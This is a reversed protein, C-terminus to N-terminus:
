GHNVLADVGSRLSEPCHHAYRQAMRIDKQGLLKAQGECINMQSFNQLLKNTPLRPKQAQVGLELFLRDKTKIQPRKITRNLIILQQHLALNKATLNAILNLKTLINQILKITKKM